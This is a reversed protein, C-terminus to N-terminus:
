DPKDKNNNSEKDSSQDRENQKQPIVQIESPMLYDIAQRAEDEKAYEVYAVGKPKKSGEFNIFDVRKVEGYFSAIEKLIEDTVNRSL